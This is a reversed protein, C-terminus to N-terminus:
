SKGDSNLLQTVLSVVEDKGNLKEIWIVPIGKEGGIGYAAGLIAGLLIARGCSDGGAYINKRIAASYSDATVVNHITSPVGYALKCSTGFTSTVKLNDEPSLSIAKKILEAIHQPAKEITQSVAKEPSSGQIVAEIISAASLGFDVALDSNNTVRIASEVVEQLENTGSYAAILAPLKALAPLQVDNAGHYVGKDKEDKQKDAEARAVNNLTDRTPHDIYGVYQGGYGFFDCFLNEYHAKDYTGGKAVLSRLLVMAQEGYQSFDGGHKCGHAYYGPVGNYDAAVPSKFEPCEPCIERIRKQDYLWHFGLSAADAVLAGIITGALPNDLNKIM